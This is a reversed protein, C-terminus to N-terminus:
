TGNALVPRCRVGIGTLTDSRRARIGTLVHGAPCVQAFSTGGTGGAVPLLDQGVAVASPAAVLLGALLVSPLSVSIAPPM